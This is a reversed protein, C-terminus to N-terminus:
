VKHRRLEACRWYMMHELRRYNVRCCCGLWGFRVLSDFMHYCVVCRIGREVMHGVVSGFDLLLGKNGFWKSRELKGAVLRVEVLSNMDKYGDATSPVAAAVPRVGVLGNMSRYRSVGSAM